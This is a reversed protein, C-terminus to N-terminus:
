NEQATTKGRSASNRWTAFSNEVTLRYSPDEWHFKDLSRRLTELDADGFQIMYAYAAIPNVPFLPSPYIRPFVPMPDRLQKQPRPSTPQALSM